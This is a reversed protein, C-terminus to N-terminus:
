IEKKMFLASIVSNDVPDNKSIFKVPHFGNNNWFNIGVQNDTYVTVFVSSCCVEKKLYNLFAKLSYTGVKKRRHSKEVAFASIYFSTTGDYVIEGKIFGLCKNAHERFIALFFEEKNLLAERWMDYFEQLCLGSNLGTAHRYYDTDSYWYYVDQADKETIDKLVMGNGVIKIDKM